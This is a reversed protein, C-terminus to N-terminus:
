TLWLLGTRTPLIKEFFVQKLWIIVFCNPLGFVSAVTIRPHYSSLTIGYRWMRNLLPAEKKTLCVQTIRAAKWVIQETGWRGVVVWYRAWVAFWCFWIMQKGLGRMWFGFVTLIAGATSCPDSAFMVWLNRAWIVDDRPAHAFSWAAFQPSPLNAQAWAPKWSQRSAKNHSCSFNTSKTIQLCRMPCTSHASNWDWCAM